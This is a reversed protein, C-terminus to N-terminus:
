RAAAHIGIRAASLHPYHPNSLRARGRNGGLALPPALVTSGPAFRPCPNSASANTQSSACLPMLVILVVGSMLRLGNRVRMTREVRTTRM